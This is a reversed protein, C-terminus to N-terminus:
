NTKRYFTSQQKPGAFAKIMSGIKKTKRQWVLFNYANRLTETNKNAFNPGSLVVFTTLTKLFSIMQDMELVGQIWRRMGFKEFNEWWAFHNELKEQM